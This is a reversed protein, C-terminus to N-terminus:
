AAPPRNGRQYWSRILLASSASLPGTRPEMTMRGYPYPIQSRICASISARMLSVPVSFAYKGNSIRLGVESALGVM